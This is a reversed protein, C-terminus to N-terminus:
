SKKSTTNSSLSEEILPSSARSVSSSEGIYRVKRSSDSLSESRFSSTIASEALSSTSKDPDSDIILNM